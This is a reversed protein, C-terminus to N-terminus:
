IVKAKPLDLTVLKTSMMLIAVMNLFPHDKWGVADGFLGM